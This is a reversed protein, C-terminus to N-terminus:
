KQTGSEMPVLIPAMWQRIDGYVEEYNTENLLEHRAGPYLHLTVNSIGAKQLRVYVKRVGKGYNGVPDVDGSILLIPLAADLSQFWAKRNARFSLTSLDRMGAATFLFMCKPDQLYRQVVSQDRTLWDKGAKDKSFRKNFSGFALRDLVTSRYLPGKTKCVLGATRMGLRSMVTPGGTGCIVAGDLEHAYKSLYLRTIFSGMSHGLLFYPLPGFRSRMMVTMKHLDEVLNRCGDQEGFFGYQERSSSDGHGLHDHGCVIFGEKALDEMFRHYRGIYECMGHCIQFIGRPQTEPIYVVGSIRSTGDTSLFSINQIKYSCM